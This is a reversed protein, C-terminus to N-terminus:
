GRQEARGGGRRLQGGIAGEEGFSALRRTEWAREKEETKLRVISQAEKRRKGVSEERRKGSEKTTEQFDAGEPCYYFPTWVTLPLWYWLNVTSVGGVKAKHQFSEGREEKSRRRKQVIQSHKDAAWGIFDPRIGAGRKKREERESKGGVSGGYAFTRRLGLGLVYLKHRTKARERWHSRDDKGENEAERKRVKGMVIVYRIDIHSNGNTPCDVVRIEGPGRGQYCPM